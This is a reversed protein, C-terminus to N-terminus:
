LTWYVLLVVMLVVTGILFAWGLVLYLDRLKDSFLVRLVDADDTPKDHWAEFVRPFVAALGHAIGVPLLLVVVSLGVTSALVGSFTWTDSSANIVTMMIIITCFISNIAMLGAGLRQM